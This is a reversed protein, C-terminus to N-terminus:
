IIIIRSSSYVSILHSIRCSVELMCMMQSVEWQVGHGAFYFLVLDEEKVHSVFTACEKKMEQYALNLKAKQTIFGISNLLNSVALADNAPNKLKKGSAYDDIGIVLAVKRRREYTTDKDPRAAMLAIHFISFV